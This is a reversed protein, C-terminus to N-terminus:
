EVGNFLITVTASRNTHNEFLVAGFPALWIRRIRRGPIEIGYRLNTKPVEKNLYSVPKSTRGGIRIHLNPVAITELAGKTMESNFVKATEKNESEMSM